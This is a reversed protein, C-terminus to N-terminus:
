LSSELFKVLTDYKPKADYDIVAGDTVLKITPYAEVNFQKATGEDKDCDIAVFEVTQENIKKGEYNAVFKDWEPRAKKCYPCWTTYFYYMTNKKGINSLEKNSSHAVDGKKKNLKPAGYKKYAYFGAAAAVISIIIINGLNKQNRQVSKFLGKPKLLSTLKM